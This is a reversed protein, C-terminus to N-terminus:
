HRPWVKRWRGRANGRHSGRSRMKLPLAAAFDLMSNDLMPVRVELGHAMSMRDVNFLNDCPLDVRMHFQIQQEKSNGGGRRLGDDGAGGSVTAPSGWIPQANARRQTLDELQGWEWRRCWEIILASDDRLESLRGCKRIRRAFDNSTSDALRASWRLAAKPFLRMRRALRQKRLGTYGLFIEDGGDGSLAVKVFERVRRCLAFVAPASTDGFPEGLGDVVQDISDRDFRIEEAGVETHRTGLDGAIARARLSEDFEPQGFRM